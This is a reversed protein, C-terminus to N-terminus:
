VCKKCVPQGSVIMYSGTFPKQCRTCVFCSSHYNHDDVVLYKGELPKGCKFCRPVFTENYCISCVPKGEHEMLKRNGGFKEQCISCVFCDSHWYKGLAKVGGEVINGCQACRCEDDDMTGPPPTTPRHQPKSPTSPVSEADTKAGCEACFKGGGLKAGCESCFKPKSPTATTSSPQAPKSPTSQQAPKSPTSPQAPKSPTSQQVPKAPTSPQAPKAPAEKADEAELQLFPQKNAICAEIAALLSDSDVIEITTAGKYYMVFKYNPYKKNLESVFVEHINPLTREVNIIKNATGYKVKIKMLPM